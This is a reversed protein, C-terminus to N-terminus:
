FYDHNRAIYKKGLPACIKLRGLWRRQWGLQMELKGLRSRDSALLLHCFDGLLLPSYSVNDQNIRLIVSKDWLKLVQPYIVAM